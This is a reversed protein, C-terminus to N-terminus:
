PSLLNVGSAIVMVAVAVRLPKVPSVPVLRAGLLVGPLSGVLLNAALRLDVSGLRWHALGAAATLLFAHAIDSGM